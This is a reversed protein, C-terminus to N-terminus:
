GPPPAPPQGAPPEARGFKRAVLGGTSIGCLTTVTYGWTEADMGDTSTFLAVTAAIICLLPFLSEREFLKAIRQKIAEILNM